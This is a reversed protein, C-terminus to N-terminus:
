RADGGPESEFEDRARQECELLYILEGLAQQTAEIRAEIRDTARRRPLPDAGPEVPPLENEPTDLGSPRAAVSRAVPEISPEVTTTASSGPARHYQTPALPDDLLETMDESGAAATAALAELVRDLYAQLEANEAQLDAITDALEATTDDIEATDMPEDVVDLAGTDDHDVTEDDRSQLRVTPAPTPTRDVPPLRLDTM